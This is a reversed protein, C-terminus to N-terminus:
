FKGVVAPGANVGFSSKLESPAWSGLTLFQCGHFFGIGVSFDESIKVVGPNGVFVEASMYNKFEM